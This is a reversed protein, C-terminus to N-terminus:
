SLYCFSQPPRAIGFDRALCRPKAYARMAGVKLAYGISRGDFYTEFFGRDIGSWRHTARWLEAPKMALVDAVRFEGLVMQVPSSAYLVVTTVDPCRYLARRFEYRKVGRLIAHVYQPKVSLLVRTPM